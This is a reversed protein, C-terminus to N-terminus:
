HNINITKGSRQMIATYWSTHWEREVNARANCSICLTVINDPHCNKKDYDIHHLDLRDFKCWCDPNQCRYNDRELIDKRFEPHKWITCYPEFSVGGCWNPNLEGSFRERLFEKQCDAGCFVRGTEPIRSQNVTMPKSCIACKTKVKPSYRPNNKGAFRRSADKINWQQFCDRSCFFRGTKNNRIDKPFVSKEKGCIYCNVIKSRLKIEVGHKKFWYSIASKSYGIEKSIQSFSLGDHYLKIATKQTQLSAIKM